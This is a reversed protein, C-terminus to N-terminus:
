LYNLEVSIDTNLLYVHFRKAGIPQGPFVFTNQMVRLFIHVSRNGPCSFLFFLIGIENPSVSRSFCTILLTTVSGKNEM